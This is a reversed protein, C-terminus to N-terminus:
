RGNLREQEELEERAMNIQDMLKQQKKDREEYVKKMQVWLSNLAERYTAYVERDQLMWMRTGVYCKIKADPVWRTPHKALGEVRRMRLNVMFGASM